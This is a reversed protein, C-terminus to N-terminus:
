DHAKERSDGVADKFKAENDIAKAFTRVAHLKSELISIHNIVRRLLAKDPPTDLADRLDRLEQRDDQNM